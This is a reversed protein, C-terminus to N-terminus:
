AEGVVDHTVESRTSISLSSFCSSRRQSVAGGREEVLKATDLHASLVPLMGSVSMADTRWASVRGDMLMLMLCEESVLGRVGGGVDPCRILSIWRKRSRGAGCCVRMSFFVIHDVVCRWAEVRLGLSLSIM